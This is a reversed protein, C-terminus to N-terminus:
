KLKGEINKIRKHIDNWIPNNKTIQLQEEAYIGLKMDLMGILVVVLLVLLTAPIIIKGINIKAYRESIQALFIYIIMILNLIALYGSARNYFIKITTSLQKIGM